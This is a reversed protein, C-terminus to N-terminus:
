DTKTANNTRRNRANIMRNRNYKSTETVVPLGDDSLHFHMEETMALTIDCDVCKISYYFGSSFNSSFNGKNIFKARGGCFPCPKLEPM